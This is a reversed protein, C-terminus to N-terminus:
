HATAPLIGADPRAAGSGSVGGPRPGEYKMEGARIELDLQNEKPPLPCTTYPNFACPPNYAKNFDLLLRGDKPRDAYLFRGGGYTSRPATKDKFVFFLASEDGDEYIPVLRVTRGGITLEAYGPSVDDSTQGLVNTFPIKRPTDYPVWRADIRYAADIPFWRLGTFGRRIASEPDRLRVGVRDGRQILQLRLRGLALAEADPALATGSTIPKGDQTMAVGPELHLTVADGRREFAGAHAPGTPLVIASSPDSGFTQTGPELWFLGAVSLWGYNSALRTARDARWKETETRYAPDPAAVTGALVLAALTLM